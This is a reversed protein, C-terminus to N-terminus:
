CSQCHAEMWPWPGYGSAVNIHGAEDPLLTTSLNLFEGYFKAALEPCYPDANSCVLETHDALQVLSAANRPIPFFTEITDLEASPGPPAVLIVRAAVRTQNQMSFHLWLIVALSHCIVTLNEPHPFKELESKLTELWDGLRPHFANPFDPFAVDHGDARLENVLWDQWHGPGSGSWGHLILFQQKM